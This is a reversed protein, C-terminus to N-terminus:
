FSLYFLIIVYPQFHVLAKDIYATWLVLMKLVDKM